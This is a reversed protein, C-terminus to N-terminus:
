PNSPSPGLRDAAADWAARGARDDRPEYHRLPQTGAVLRRMSGLDGVLGAAREQVLVNGLATAEVPGAVVPLGTADATWRCLLASKSRARAAMSAVSTLARQCASIASNKSSSSPRARSTAM